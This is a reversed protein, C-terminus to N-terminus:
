EESGEQKYSELEDDYLENIESNFQAKNNQLEIFKTYLGDYIIKQAPNLILNADYEDMEVEQNPDLITDIISLIDEKKMEDVPKFSTGDVSFQGKSDNIKM